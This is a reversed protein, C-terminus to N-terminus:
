VRFKHKRMSGAREAGSLIHRISKSEQIIFLVFIVMQEIIQKLATRKWFLLIELPLYQLYKPCCINSKWCYINPKWELRFIQSIISKHSPESNWSFQSRGLMVRIINQYHCAPERPAQGPSAPLLWPISLLLLSTHSGWGLYSCCCVPRPQPDIM